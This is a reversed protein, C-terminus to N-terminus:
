VASEAARVGGQCRGSVGARRGAPRTSHRGSSRMPRCRLGSIDAVGLQWERNGSVLQQQWACSEGAGQVEGVAAWLDRPEVAWAAVLYRGAGYALDLYDGFAGDDHAPDAM